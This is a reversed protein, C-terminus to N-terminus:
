WGGGGGGGGGGGSSGGGGGGSFGSSSSSPAPMSNTMSESISAPLGAMTEGVRGASFSRGSYWNPNYSAAAAAGAATALWAQFANSWPKELGLSVAYPLVTEFHQPSMVPAGALNMRDKEALNIYTKLGEIGDMYERGLPTPAGLLYFFLVNLVVIGGVAALMLPQAGMSYFAAGIAPLMNMAFFGFIAWRILSGLKGSFGKSGALRFGVKTVLVTIVIALFAIIFVPGIIDEGGGGSVITLILALLSLGIGAFVYPLNRIFFRNRHESYLAKRFKTAMSLVKKSNSKKITFKGGQLKAHNHLVQEGAPLSDTAGGDLVKITVDKGIEELKIFGKVALSLLAASLANHGSLGKHEIYHVQAPPIGDPADWRPVIVGSAPDRGVRNWAWFYYLIILLLGGLGALYPKNDRWFWAAKQASTPATISGKPMMVAITLGWNKQLPATTRFEVSNRDPGYHSSANRDTAGFPGTFMNTDTARVGNPLIVEARAFRIPFSWFNGTVNWYLEDHNDFFRIQRDTDYTITYTHEGKNIRRSSNGIYIRAARSASKIHYDEPKGNRMVSVVTFGVRNERGSPGKFVLPFDRYIGRRISRGEANIRITETVRLNGNAAVEVKSNFNLIEEAAQASIALWTLALLAVSILRLARLM